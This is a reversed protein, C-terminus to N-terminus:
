RPSLLALLASVTVVSATTSILVISSAREVYIDYRRALVFVNAAVPLAADLVAVAAWLPDLSFVHAAM